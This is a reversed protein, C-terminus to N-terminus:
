SKRSEMARWLKMFGEQLDKDDLTSVLAGLAKERVPDAVFPKLRMFPGQDNRAPTVSKAPAELKFRIDTIGDEGLQQNIIELLQQKQLTLQQMWVSDHVGVWLVTGRLVVPWAQLSLDLGVLVEWCEFLQHRHLVKEWRRKQVLEGILAAIGVM